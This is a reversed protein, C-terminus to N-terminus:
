NFYRRQRRRLIAQFLLVVLMSMKDRYTKMSLSVSTQGISDCVNLVRLSEANKETCSNSSGSCNVILM